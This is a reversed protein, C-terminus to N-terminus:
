AGSPASPVRRASRSAGASAIAVAAIGLVEPVTLTQGLLLFGVIAAIAPDMSMLVGFTSTAMRRLVTLDLTYPIATSFLAVGIVAIIAGPTVLLEGLGGSVMALPVVVVSAVILALTLGGGDPWAEALHATGVIYLAWLGGAIFAAVVGLADDSILRGGSLAFIGAAALGVWVLDRANRRGLVALALPGWFEITVAVALPIRDISVYMATNMAALALGVLLAWRLGAGPAHLAAVRPPRFPLLMLASFVARMAVVTPAGFVAILQTAMAASVQVSLAAGVVLLEPPATPRRRTPREPRSVGLGGLHM